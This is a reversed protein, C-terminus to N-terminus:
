VPMGGRSQAILEGDAGTIGVYDKYEYIVVGRAKRTQQVKARNM